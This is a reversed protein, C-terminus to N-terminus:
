TGCCRTSSTPIATPRATSTTPWPWGRRTSAQGSATEMFTIVGDDDLGKLAITSVGEQERHLLGLAETLPHAVALEMDRYTVLVLLRTRVSNTVVHRLLQLSPKDAWHLDDLVLLVPAVASAQELLGLVAAFLLYRETDPDASKLAPLEGLRQGLVPM